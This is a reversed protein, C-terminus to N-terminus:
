IRVMVETIIKEELLLQSHSEAASDLKPMTAGGTALVGQELEHRMWAGQWTPRGLVQITKGAISWSLILTYTAATQNQRARLGNQISDVLCTAM